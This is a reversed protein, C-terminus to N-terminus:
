EESKKSGKSLILGALPLLLLGVALSPEPTSVPATEPSDIEPSDTEPSDTKPSDTKPPFFQPLTEEILDPAPRDVSVTESPDNSPPFQPVTEEILNPEPGSALDTESPENQSLQPISEKSLNPEPRGALNTESYNNLFFQPVSGRIFNPELPISVPNTELPIDPFFQPAYGEIIVCDEGSKKETYQEILECLVDKKKPKPKVQKVPRYYVVRKPKPAFHDVIPFCIIASQAPVQLCLLFVATLTTIKV